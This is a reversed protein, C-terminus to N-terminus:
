PVTLPNEVEEQFIWVVVEENSSAGMVCENHKAEAALDGPMQGQKDKVSM